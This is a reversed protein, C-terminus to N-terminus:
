RDGSGASARVFAPIGKERSIRAVADAVEHAEYHRHEMVELERIGQMRILRFDGYPDRIAMVVVRGLYDVKGVFWEGDKRAKEDEM